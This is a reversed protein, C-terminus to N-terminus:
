DTLYRQLREHIHALKLENVTFIYWVFNKSQRKKNRTWKRFIPIGIVLM